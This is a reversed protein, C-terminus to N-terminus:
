SVVGFLERIKEAPDAVTVLSEGILVADAGAEEMKRIDQRTSIGSESVRVIDNPIDPLLQFTTELSVKFSQLDRNNIGIISAGCDLAVKLEPANHVEVLADMGLKATEAILHKLEPPPLAAVILLVADAGYWRAEVLQYPDIIFDKRLVPTKVTKVKVEKLYNLSGLFFAEETLVSIGAAGAQEYCTGLFVPDFNHCLLGKSPSAKKVEAILRIRTGRLNPRFPRIEPAQNELDGQLMELPVKDKRRSVEAYQQKLIRELFM